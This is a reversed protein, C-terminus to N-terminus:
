YGASGALRMYRRPGIAMEPVGEPWISFVVAQRELSEDTSYTLGWYIRHYRRILTIDSQISANYDFDYQQSFVLTYRPDLKYTAAFTFANSGREDQVHLTRLYRSGIYYSLDPWRLQSFGINFQEVTGGQIDFYMDSLVATTDSLRWSYDASFYNRGPGFINTTRRDAPPLSNNITDSLPIFPKNFLFRSPGDPKDASDNVWTVSTDLRMWDVTRQKDAPGRKTQLRQSLGIQLTDRQEIASDSQTYAVATLYPRVIHRLQNLDWLKSAVQPYVKWYHKSFRAGLEAFWVKEESSVPSGEIDTQFGPGDDYAVTGAVFPVFKTKGLTLPMDIEVRESVFTFLEESLQSSSSGPRQRFRSVQGDSYLTLTDGLLSQGTRHYEISPLEEVQDSFDNIRAKGLISLGWNNEIRKLHVLSEQEKGAYFENRYFAELFNEDSLYSLETTLQWNYPLFHRHQWRLRGRWDHPPELDKRSPDRGLDDEGRDKIVYGLLNGFYNDKAYKLGVGSGIGREGFYDLDFAAETGEPEPLSLLRFLYWRTEISPGFDNDYCAHISRIPLDPRELNSRLAPWYFITTEGAKLRVDRMQAEYSSKTVAARQQDRSTTDTVTISSANLSLQPTHFESSTLTVDEASFENEAVQKLKAARLYIPIGREPDFNKMEAETALGRKKEFDYYLQEARITRLGETMVVDGCVYIAKVDKSSFVSPLDQRRQNQEDQKDEREPRESYWIVANDAQLELLTGQAQKQWLYFRQRVTAVYTGDPERVRDIKLGEKGAPAINVPYRFKGPSRLIAGAPHRPEQIPKLGSTAKQSGTVAYKAVATEARKFLEQKSPDAIQRTDASVFVWGTIDFWLVSKRGKELLRQKFFDVPYDKGKKVAPAGELYAKIHYSVRSQPGIDETRVAKLWVVAQNSSFRSDGLGMAFGNRFLLVQEGSQLTFSVMDKGELHLVQVQANQQEGSEEPETAAGLWGQPYLVISLLLTLRTISNNDPM